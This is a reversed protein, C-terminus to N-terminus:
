AGPPRAKRALRRDRLVGWALVRVFAVAIHPWANASQGPGAAPHPPFGGPWPTWVAMLCAH